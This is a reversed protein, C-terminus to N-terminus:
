KPKQGKRKMIRAAMTAVFGRPSLRVSLSALYNLKGDVVYSKGRELAKIASAVVNEVTRMRGKTAQEGSVKFFNTETTGPCLALVRIGQRRYEAWLAESFSLVFAKSSGYLAMFPVPQFAATSAVNVIIGERESIMGPLFKHTLRVPAAVNVMLMDQVKEMQLADFPGHAGFGANNVLIDVHRRLKKTRVFVKDPADTKSLDAVIVEASVKWTKRIRAAIRDLKGKSRAVLIVDAGKAALTEAFAAGIGSSAGTILATKGDFDIM